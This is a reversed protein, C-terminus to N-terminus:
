TMIHRHQLQEIRFSRSQQIRARREAQWSELSRLTAKFDEEKQAETRKPRPPPASPEHMKGVSRGFVRGSDSM